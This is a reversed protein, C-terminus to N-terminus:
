PVSEVHTLFIHYRGKHITRAKRVHHDKTGDTKGSLLM